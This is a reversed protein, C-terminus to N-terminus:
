IANKKPKKGSKIKLDKRDDKKGGKEISKEHRQIAINTLVTLTSGDMKLSISQYKLYNRRLLNRKVVIAIQLILNYKM